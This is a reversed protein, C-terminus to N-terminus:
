HRSGQGNLGILTVIEGRTLTIDVGDLIQRGAFSVSVGEAVVLGAQDPGESRPDHPRSDFNM